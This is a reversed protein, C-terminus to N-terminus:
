GVAHMRTNIERSRIQQAEFRLLVAPAPPKQLRDGRGCYWSHIYAESRNPGPAVAESEFGDRYGETHEADLFKEADAILDNLQKANM